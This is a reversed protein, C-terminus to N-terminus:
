SIAYLKQPCVYEWRWSLWWGQRLAEQVGCALPLLSAHRCQLHGRSCKWPELARCDLSHRRVYARNREQTTNWYNSRDTEKQSDTERGKWETTGIDPPALLRNPRTGVPGRPLRYKWQPTSYRAPDMLMDTNAGPCSTQKDPGWSWWAATELIEHSCSCSLFTLRAHIFTNYTHCCKRNRDVWKKRRTEDIGQASIAWMINVSVNPCPLAWRQAPHMPFCLFLYFWENNNSKITM